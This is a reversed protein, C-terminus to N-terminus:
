QHIALATVTAAFRNRFAELLAHKDKACITELESTESEGLCNLVLDIIDTRTSGHKVGSISEPHQAFGYTTQFRLVFELLTEGEGRPTVSERPVRMVIPSAVETQHRLEEWENSRFRLLKNGERLHAEAEAYTEFRM